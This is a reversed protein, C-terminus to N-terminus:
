RRQGADQVRSLRVRRREDEIQGVTSAPRAQKEAVSGPDLREQDAVLVTEEV